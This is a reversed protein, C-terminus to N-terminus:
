PSFKLRIGLTAAHERSEVLLARDSTGLITSNTFAAHWRTFDYGVDIALSQSADYSLQLRGRIESADSLDGLNTQALYPFPAIAGEVFASLSIAPVIRVDLELNSAVGFMGITPAGGTPRGWEYRTLVGAGATLVVGSTLRTAAGALFRGTVDAGASGLRAESTELRGGEAEIRGFFPKNSLLRFTFRALGRAPQLTESGFKSGGAGQDLRVSLVAPKWALLLGTPIPDPIEIPVERIDPLPHRQALVAPSLFCFVLVIVRVRSRYELEFSV